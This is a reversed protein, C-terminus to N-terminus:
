FKEITAQEVDGDVRVGLIHTGHMIVSRHNSAEVKNVDNDDREKHDVDEDTENNDGKLVLSFLLVSVAFQIFILNM